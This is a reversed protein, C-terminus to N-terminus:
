VSMSLSDAWNPQYVVGITTTEALEPQINPNGGTTLEAVYAPADPVLPDEGAAIGTGGTQTDFRESLTGARTDRSWTGRFRVSETAQWDLGAKGAWVGGSGDYDAYRAALHLDVGGGGSSGLIPVISEGFVEWVDYQGRIAGQSNPNGSYFLGRDRVF